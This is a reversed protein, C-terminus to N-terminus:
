PSFPISFFIDSTAYGLRCRGAAAVPDNSLKRSLVISDSM